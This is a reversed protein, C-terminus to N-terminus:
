KRNLKRAWGVIDRYKEVIGVRVQNIKEPTLLVDVACVTDPKYRLLAFCSPGFGGGERLFKDTPVYGNNTLIDDKGALRPTSDLPCDPFDVTASFFLVKISKRTAGALSSDCTATVMTDAYGNSVSQVGTQWLENEYAKQYSELTQRGKTRLVTQVDLELTRREWFSKRNDMQSPPMGGIEGQLGGSAHHSMLVGNELILRNNLNQVIQFGMSAAFLTITDVRRRSGKLAEILELGAQIDGGPTRLFLYIPSDTRVQNLRQVKSIVEGVTEPTVEDNLVVTNSKSLTVNPVKAGTLAALALAQSTIAIAVLFSLLKM